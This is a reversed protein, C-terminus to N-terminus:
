HVVNPASAARTPSPLFLVSVVAVVCCLVARGLWWIRRQGAVQRRVYTTAANDLNGYGDGAQGAAPLHPNNDVAPELGLRSEVGAAVDLQHEHDKSGLEVVPQVNDAGAEKNSKRMCYAALGVTVLLM